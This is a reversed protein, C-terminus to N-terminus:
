AQATDPGIGRLVLGVLQPRARESAWGHRGRLHVYPWCVANFVVNALERPDGAPQLSGDALGDRLLREIPGNFNFGPAGSQHFATDSALLLPLHRDAVSCLAELARRLRERGSGEATLIPWLAERYDAALRELLAAILSERSVGQRWLTVRSVGAQEAVRDLSVAELGGEALVALTADLLKRDM